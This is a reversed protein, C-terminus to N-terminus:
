VSLLRVSPFWRQLTALDDYDGTYIVDGRRAASAMVISDAVTAGAIAALAEGARKALEISPAEIEVSRL